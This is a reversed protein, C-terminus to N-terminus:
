LHIMHDMQILGSYKPERFGVATLYFPPANVHGAGTFTGRPAETPGNKPHMPPVGGGRGGAGGGKGRGWGGGGRPTSRGGKGLGEGRKVPTLSRGGVGLGKGRKM